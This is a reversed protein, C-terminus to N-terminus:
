NCEDGYGTMDECIRDDSHSKILGVLMSVIDKLIQKGPAIENRGIIAKAM